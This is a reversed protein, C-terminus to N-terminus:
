KAELLPAYKQRHAFLLFFNLAFVLYGPAGNAPDLSVHFLLINVTVPALILLALAAYRNTLLALGSLIETIAILPKFYAAGFLGTFYLFAQTGQDYELPPIFDLFKNVGFVFFILGLLIRTILKVKDM